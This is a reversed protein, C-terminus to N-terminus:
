RDGGGGGLCIHLKMYTIWNTYAGLEHEPPISKPEQGQPHDNNHTIKNAGDLCISHYYRLISWPWM